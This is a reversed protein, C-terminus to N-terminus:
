EKPLSNYVVGLFSFLFSLVAIYFFSTESYIYLWDCLLCMAVLNVLSAVTWITKYASAATTM